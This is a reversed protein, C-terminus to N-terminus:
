EITRRRRTRRTTSADSRPPNATEGSSRRGDARRSRKTYAETNVRTRAGVRSEKRGRLRTCARDGKVAGPRPRSRLAARAEAPRGSRGYRRDGRTRDGTRARPTEFRGNTGRDFAFGSRTWRKRTERRGSRRRIVFTEDDTWRTRAEFRTGTARRPFRISDRGRADSMIASSASQDRQM